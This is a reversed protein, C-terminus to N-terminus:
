GGLKALVAQLQSRIAERTAALVRAGLYLDYGPHEAVAGSRVLELLTDEGNVGHRQLLRKRDERLEFVLRSLQELQEAADLPLNEFFSSM